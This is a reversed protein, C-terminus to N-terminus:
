QETRREFRYMACFEELGLRRLEESLGVRASEAGELDHGFASEAVCQGTHVDVVTLAVRAYEPSLGETSIHLAARVFARMWAGLGRGKLTHVRLEFCDFAV